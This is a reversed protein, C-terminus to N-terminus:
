NIYGLSRLKELTEEDQSQFMPHERTDAIEEFRKQLLGLLQRQTAPQEDALNTMEKPDKALNYMEFSHNENWILKHSATRLCRMRYDILTWDYGPYRNKLLDIGTVPRENGAIVYERRRNASNALSTQEASLHPMQDAAGCLDLITPAVDTISVIESARAPKFAAPYRMVLPIHLVTEYMTMMHDIRDREGLNEGHDSVVIVLTDDLIGTQKLAHVLRGVQADAFGIEGDYLDNLLRFEREGLVIQGTLHDWWSTIQMTWQVLAPPYDESLFRTLYPERPSYSLHVGNLNAFLFFPEPSSGAAEIWEVMRDVTISEITQHVARRAPLNERRWMEHYESFGQDFGREKSVWGNCIFAATRYGATSLAEALTGNEAPLHLTESTAGAQIPHLGTFLSAHSPLTWNCTTFASEFLIGEAALADINPSTPRGYGYCSLHDARLTDLVIVLVNPRASQGCGSVAFLIGLCILLLAHSTTRRM